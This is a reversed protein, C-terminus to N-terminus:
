VLLVLQALLVRPVQLALLVLLGLRVLLDRFYVLTLMYM